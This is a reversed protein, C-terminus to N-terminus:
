DLLVKGLEGKRFARIFDYAAAAYDPVKVTINGSPELFQFYNLM